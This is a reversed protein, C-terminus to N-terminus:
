YTFSVDLLDSLQTKLNIYQLSRSYFIHRLQVLFSVPLSSSLSFSHPFPLNLSLLCLSLTLSFTFILFLFLSLSHSRSLCFSVCVSISVWLCLCLCVCLCLSVRVCLCGSLSLSSISTCECKMFGMVKQKYIIESNIQMRTQRSNVRTICFHSLLAFSNGYPVDPTTAYSQLLYMEGPNSEKLM